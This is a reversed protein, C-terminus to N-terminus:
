SRGILSASDKAGFARRGTLLEKSCAIARTAYLTTSRCRGKSRSARMYEMVLYDPGVDYLTRNHPHNLAAIAKVERQFRDTVRHIPV